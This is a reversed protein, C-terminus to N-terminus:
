PACTDMSTSRSSSCESLIGYLYITLRECKPIKREDDNQFCVTDYRRIIEQDVIEDLKLSKTAGSLLERGRAYASYLTKASASTFASRSVEELDENKKNGSGKNKEKEAAEKLEKERIKNM